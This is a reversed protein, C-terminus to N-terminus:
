PRIIPKPEWLVSNALITKSRWLCTAHTGIVPMTGDHFFCGGVEAVLEQLQTRSPVIELPVYGADEKAEKVTAPAPMGPAWEKQEPEMRREEREKQHRFARAKNNVEKVTHASRSAELTVLKLYAALLCLAEEMAADADVGSVTGVQSSCGCDDNEEADRGENGFDGRGSYSHTTDNRWAIWVYM